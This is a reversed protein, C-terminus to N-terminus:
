SFFQDGPIKSPFLGLLTCFKHRRRCKLYRMQKPRKHPPPLLWMRMSGGGSEATRLVIHGHNDRIYGNAIFGLHLGPYLYVSGEHFYALPRGCYANLHEDDGTYAIPKHLLDYFGQSM